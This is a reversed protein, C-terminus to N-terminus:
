PVHQDILVPNGDPDMVVFSAPGTAEDLGTEQMTEFGAAHVAKYIDRVDDGPTPAADQTWKPNFTLMNGDFMGQFLGILHDGNKLILYGHDPHGAFVSFGLTEYFVRSVELDKVGLSISFAGLQM